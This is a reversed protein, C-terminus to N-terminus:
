PSITQGNGFDFSAAPRGIQGTDTQTGSAEIDGQPNFADTAESRVAIAEALRAEASRADPRM